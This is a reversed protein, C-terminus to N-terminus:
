AAEASSGASGPRLWSLARAVPAQRTATAGSRGRRLLMRWMDADFLYHGTSLLVGLTARKDEAYFGDYVMTADNFDFFPPDLKDRDPNVLFHLLDGLVLWRCRRGLTYVHTEPVPQGMALQYLLYPFDVGCTIALQISAWFRPNVEFLLAEGTRPDEMFEVEALGYWGIARLLTVAREVLDPRWVSEQMTSLGDRVPFHRLERQVFSAVAHGREDILVGVDFKPGSPVCEQLMPFPYERHAALWAESVDVDSGVYAIGRGGSSGRPKIVLPARIEDAFAAVENSNAPLRTTPHPIGLREALQMVRAKDLGYALQPADPLPLRTVREFDSRYRAIVALSADDTPILVDHPERRLYELLREVFAVPQSVPSPYVLTNRVHRSFFTPSLRTTSGASVSLGHGGLSQAVVVSKRLLGDTVFAAGNALTAIAM